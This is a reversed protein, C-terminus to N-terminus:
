KKIGLVAGACLEATEAGSFELLYVSTREAKFSVVSQPVGSSKNSLVAQGSGTKLVFETNGANPDCIAVKYSARSSLVNDDSFTHKKAAVSDLAYTNLVAYGDGLQSKCAEIVTATDCAAYATGAFCATAVALTAITKKFM